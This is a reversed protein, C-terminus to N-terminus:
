APRDRVVLADLAIAGPGAGGSPLVLVPNLDLEAVQGPYAAVIDSVAVLLDALASVDCAPGGRQGDLLPKIRLSAVMEAAQARDIPLLRRSSDRLLEVLLGGAGVTIMPGFIPDRHVGIIVEVGGPAIMQEYLVGHVAAEPAKVAVAELIQGYARLAAADDGIGVIVGGVDSKHALDPSVVKAVLPFGLPAIAARIEADDTVVAGRPVAVGHQELWSKAAPETTPSPPLDPQATVATVLSMEQKATWAARWEGYRAWRRLLAATKGLSRPSCLGERVLLDWGPGRRDSMWVPVLPTSVIRQVNVIGQATRETESGYDLAIPIVVVDVGPDEAVATLSSEVLAPNTLVATTIDVPNGTAAFDPLAERLRATTEATFASLTLSARGLLDACLSVSGGSSGWVGIRTNSGPQARALLWAIDTLEDIDDVEIAGFQAFIASNVEASGAMAATHSKVARAGYESHGLKLAVVPKGARAASILSAVFAPGNSIGELLTVIVSIRDDRAYFNIVDPIDLDASNGLSAWLATGPGGRDSAQVINRGLGGGQTALGVPGPTRDDPFAPSFTMGIRDVINCFGPCNPGVIRMGSSRAIESIRAQEDIGTGGTEGFGSTLVMAFSVKKAALQELTRLVAPQPIVVIAVDVPGPLADVNPICPHGAIQDRKPNVLYATGDWDSHALLNRVVRNGLSGPTDSAGVIVVSEPKFLRALDPFDM